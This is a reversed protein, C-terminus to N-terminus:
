EPDRGPQHSNGVTAEVLLGAMFDAADAQTYSLGAELFPTSDFRHLYQLHLYEVGVQFTHTGRTWSLNDDAEEDENVTWSWTSNASGVKFRNEVEIDAVFAGEGASFAGLGLETDHDPRSSYILYNYRKYGVRVVNLVNPTM